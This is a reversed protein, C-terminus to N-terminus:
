GGIGYGKLQQMRHEGFTESITRLYLSLDKVAIDSEYGPWFFPIKENILSEIFVVHTLALFVRPFNAPNNFDSKLMHVIVHRNLGSVDHESEKYLINSFFLRFANIVDAQPCAHTLFDIEVECDYTKGPHWVYEHTKRRGWSIILDKLGKEFEKASVNQASMGLVSNQINRLGAEFVPILSMIAVYDM